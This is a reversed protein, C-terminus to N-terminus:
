AAHFLHPSPVPTAQFLSRLDAPHCGWRAQKGPVQTAQGSTTIGRLCDLRQQPDRSRNPAPALPTEWPLATTPCRSTSSARDEKGDWTTLLNKSPAWHPRPRRVWLPGELLSVPFPRRGCDPPAPLVRDKFVSSVARRRRPHNTLQAEPTRQPGAPNPKGRAPVTGLTLATQKMPSTRDAVLTARNLVRGGAPAPLASAAHKPEAVACRGLLFSPHAGRGLSPRSAGSALGSLTSLGQGGIVARWPIHPSRGINSNRLGVWGRRRTPRRALRDVARECARGAGRVACASRTSFAQTAM